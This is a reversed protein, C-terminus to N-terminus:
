PRVLAGFLEAIEADILAPDAVTEAIEARLLARFRKRFRFVLVRFHGETVGAAAASERYRGAAQEGKGAGSSFPTLLEYIQANGQREYEDRLRQFVADLLATAWNRNFLHVADRTDALEHTLRGQIAAYDISVHQDRGGRKLANGKRRVQAILNDMGGLLYSRLRGKAQSVHNMTERALLQSFFTQTLDEADEQSCGRRRAHAFLPHWYARCVEEQGCIAERDKQTFLHGLVLM